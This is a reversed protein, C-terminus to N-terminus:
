RCARRGLGRFTHKKEVGHFACCQELADKKKTNDELHVSLTQAMTEGYLLYWRCAALM